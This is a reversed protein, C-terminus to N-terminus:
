WCRAQLFISKYLRIQIEKNKKFLTMRKICLHPTHFTYHFSFENDWFIILIYIFLWILLSVREVFNSDMIHRGICLITYLSLYLTYSKQLFSLQIPWDNRKLQFWSTKTKKRQVQVMQKWRWIRIIILKYNLPHFAMTSRYSINIWPQLYFVVLNKLHWSVWWQAMNKYIM